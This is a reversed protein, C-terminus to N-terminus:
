QPYLPALVQKQQKTVPKSLASEVAKLLMDSNWQKSSEGRYLVADLERISARLAETEAVEEVDQLNRVGDNQHHQKFLNILATRAQKADNSKCASQLQKKADKLLADSYTPKNDPKSQNTTQNAKRTALIWILAAATVLWLGFFAIAIWQWTRNVSGSQALSLPPAEATQSLEPSAATIDTQPRSSTGAVQITRAPLTTVKVEEADVDWWTIDIAPLNITGTQTAILAQSETRTSVMGQDSPASSTDAQEPYIKVGQLDTSPLAPLITSLVGEAQMTVTRTIPEGINTKGSDPSWSETLQLSKAPLWPKDAPYSDPKPKAEFELEPSYRRVQKGNFPDFTFGRSRGRFVTANLQASPIKITGSKQPFLAYRFEFVDYEMGNLTTKYNRQEGLQEMAVNDITPPQYSPDYIDVNSRFIRVTYILQEQVFVTQKDIKADVFLYQDNSNANSRKTVHLKMPKSSVGEFTIPPVAIYGTHKPLLTLVWSTFSQFRGNSINSREAKYTSLVEFHQNLVSFDPEKGDATNDITVTLKVTDGQTVKSTSLKADINLAYAQVSLLTLILFTFIKSHRVM